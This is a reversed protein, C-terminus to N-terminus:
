DPEAVDAARLLDLGAKLAKFQKNRKPAVLVIDPGKVNELRLFDDLVSDWYTKSLDLKRWEGRMARERTVVVQTEPDRRVLRAPVGRLSFDVAEMASIDLAWDVAQYFDRNAEDFLLQTAPYPTGRYTRNIKISALTGRLVVHRFAAGWIFLLEPGSDLGDVVVEDLIAPGVISAASYCNRLQVNRIVSRDKPDVTGAAISSSQFTCGEFEYNEFTGRLHVGDFYRGEIRQLPVVQSV